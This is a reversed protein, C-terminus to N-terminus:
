EPLVSVCQSVQTPLYPGLRFGPITYTQPIFPKVFPMCLCNIICLPCMCVRLPFQDLPPSTSRTLICVSCCGGDGAKLAPASRGITGIHLHNRRGNIVHKRYRIFPKVFPMCVLWCGGDGAKLAPALRGVLTCTTEVNIVYVRM